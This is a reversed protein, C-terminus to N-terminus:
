SGIHLYYPYAKFISTTEKRNYILLFKLCCCAMTSTFIYVLCIYKNEVIYWSWVYTMNQFIKYLLQIAVTDM